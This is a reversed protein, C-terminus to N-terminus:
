AQFLETMAQINADTNVIRLTDTYIKEIYFPILM